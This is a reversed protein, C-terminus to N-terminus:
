EVIVTLIVNATEGSVGTYYYFVEYVGPTSTDVDTENITVTALSVPTDKGVLPDTVAELYQRFTPYKTGQELYILYDTLTIKPQSISNDTIQITLPLYVTDGMQNSASLKAYYVGPITNIVNTEELKLRSSINGDRTDTVTISDQFNVTEGMRFIMARNLDFRPPVYDRYRIIRTYTAYNSADDFVIYDVRVDTENILTSVSKIRIKDTLDGDVNDSASLGELMAERPDSVSVELVDTQAHFVPPQSDTHTAEYYYLGAAALLALSFFSVLFVRIYRLM